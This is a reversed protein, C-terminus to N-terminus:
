WELSSDSRAAKIKCVFCVIVLKPPEAGSRSAYAPPEWPMAEKKIREDQVGRNERPTRIQFLRLELSTSSMATVTPIDEFNCIGSGRRLVVQFKPARQPM